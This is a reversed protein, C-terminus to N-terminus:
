AIIDIFYGHLNCELNILKLVIGDRNYNLIKNPFSKDKLTNGSKKFIQKSYKKHQVMRNGQNLLGLLSNFYYKRSFNDNRQFHPKDHWVRVSENIKTGAKRCSLEQTHLFGRWSRNYLNRCECSHCLEFYKLLSRYINRNRIIERQIVEIVLHSGWGLRGWLPLLLLLGEKQPM